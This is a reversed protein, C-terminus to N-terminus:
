GIATMKFIAICRSSGSRVARMGPQDGPQPIIFRVGGTDLSAIISANAEIQVVLRLGVSEQDDPRLSTALSADALIVVDFSGGFQNGFDGGAAGTVIQPFLEIGVAAVTDTFVDYPTYKVPLNVPEHIAFPL